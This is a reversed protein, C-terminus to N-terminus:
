NSSCLTSRKREDALFLAVKDTEVDNLLDSKYEVMRLVTEKWWEPDNVTVECNKEMGHCGLCRQTILTQDDAAQVLCVAFLVAAVCFFAALMRYPRREKGAPIVRRADSDM